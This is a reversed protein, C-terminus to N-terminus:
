MCILYINVQISSYNQSFTRHETFIRAVIVLDFDILKRSDFSNEISTIDDAFYLQLRIIKFYTNFAEVIYKCLRRWNQRTDIVLIRVIRFLVNSTSKVYASKNSVIENIVECVGIVTPLAESELCLLNIPNEVLLKRIFQTQYLVSAYFKRASLLTDQVGFSFLFYFQYTLADTKFNKGDKESNIIEERNSILQRNFYESIIRSYFNQIRIKSTRADEALKFRDFNTLNM